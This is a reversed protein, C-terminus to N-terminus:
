ANEPTVETSFCVAKWGQEFMSPMCIFTGTMPWHKSVFASRSVMLTGTSKM